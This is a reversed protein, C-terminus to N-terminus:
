RIFIIWFVSVPLQPLESLDSKLTFKMIFDGMFENTVAIWM